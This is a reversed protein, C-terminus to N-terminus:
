SFDRAQNKEAWALLVAREMMQLRRFLDPTVERGDMGLAARADAYRLGQPTMATQVVLWAIVASWNDPHVTYECSAGRAMEERVSEPAGFVALDSVAEDRLGLAAV